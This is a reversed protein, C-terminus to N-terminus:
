REKKEAQRAGYKRGRRFGLAFALEICHYVGLKASGKIEANDYIKLLAVGDCFSMASQTNRPNKRLIQYFEEQATKLSRLSKAIPDDDQIEMNRIVDLIENNEM